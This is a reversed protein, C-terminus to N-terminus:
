FLRNVTIRQIISLNQQDDQSTNLLLKGSCAWTSSLVLDASTMVDLTRLGNWGRREQQGAAEVTSLNITNIINNM